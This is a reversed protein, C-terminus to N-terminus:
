IFGIQLDSEERRVNYAILLADGIDPSKDPDSLKVRGKNDFEEIYGFLDKAMEEHEPLLVNGNRGDVRMLSAVESKKNKYTEKDDASNSATFEYVDVGRDFLIDFVGAGLGLVDIGTYRIKEKKVIRHVWNATQTIPQKMKNTNKVHINDVEFRYRQRDANDWIAEGDDEVAVPEIDKYRGTVMVIRDGGSRAVDVGAVKVGGNVPKNQTCVRYWENNFFGEETDDVFNCNIYVEISRQSMNKKAREVQEATLRGEEIAGQADIWIRFVKEDHMSDYFHNKQHPNSIEVLKTETSELLMRRVVSYNDDSVLASEDLIVMDGGIGIAGKGKVDTNKLRESVGFIDISGGDAWGLRYKSLTTAVNEIRDKGALNEKIYDDAGPLMKIVKGMAIKSREKDGGGIQVEQGRIAASILAGIAITFTKGYRTPTIVCVEQISRDLIAGLILSQTFYLDVDFYKQAVSYGVKAIERHRETIKKPQRM